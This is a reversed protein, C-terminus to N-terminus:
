RGISRLFASVGAIPYLQRRLLAWAIYDLKEQELIADARIRANIAINVALSIAKM